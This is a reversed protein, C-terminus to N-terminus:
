CPPSPREARSWASPTPPLPAGAAVSSVRAPPEHLCRRGLPSHAPPRNRALAARAVPEVGEREGEESERRRSATSLVGRRGSSLSLTTEDLPIQQKRQVHVHRQNQKPAASTKHGQGGVQSHPRVSSSELLSSPVRTKTHARTHATQTSHLSRAFATRTHTTRRGATNRTCVM